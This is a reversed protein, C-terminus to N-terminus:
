KDIERREWNAGFLGGIGVFVIGIIAVGIGTGVMPWYVWLSRSDDSLDIVFWMLRLTVWIGFGAYFIRKGRVYRRADERAKGTQLADHTSMENEKRSPSCRLSTAPQPRAQEVQLPPPGDLWQRR